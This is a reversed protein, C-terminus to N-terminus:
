NHERPKFDAENNKLETQVRRSRSFYIVDFNQICFYLLYYLSSSVRTSIMHKLAAILELLYEFASRHPEQVFFIKNKNLHRLTSLSLILLSLSYKVPLYASLPMGEVVSGLPAKPVQVDKTGGAGDPLNVSWSPPNSIGLAEFDVGPGM